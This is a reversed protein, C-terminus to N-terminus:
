GSHSCFFFRCFNLRSNRTYVHNLSYYLTLLFRIFFFNASFLWSSSIVCTSGAQHKYVSYPDSTSYFRLHYKAHLSLLSFDCVYQVIVFSFLFRLSFLFMADLFNIWMERQPWFPCCFFLLLWVRLHSLARDIIIRM